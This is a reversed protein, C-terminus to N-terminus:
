IVTVRSRLLGARIVLFSGLVLRRALLFGANPRRDVEFGVHYQDASIMKSLHCYVM